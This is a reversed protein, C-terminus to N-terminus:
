GEGGREGGVEIKEKGDVRGKGEDGVEKKEEGHM